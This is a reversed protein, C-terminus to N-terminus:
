PVQPSSKRRTQLYETQVASWDARNLGGRWVITGDLRLWLHGAPDTHAELQKWGTGLTAPLHFYPHATWVRGRDLSYRLVVRGEGDLGILLFGDDYAQLSAQGLVPAGYPNEATIPLYDWGWTNRGTHDILRKWLRAEGNQVGYLLVEDIREDIRSPRAAGCIETVPLFPLETNAIADAVPAAGDAASTIGTPTIVFRCGAATFTGAEPRAWAQTDWEETPRRSWVTSDGETRHVRLELTYTRRVSRDASYVVLERPQSLDLSDTLTFSEEQGTTLSRLVASGVLNLTSLVARAANTGRPLSDVNYILNREQDITFPYLTGSVSTTVISDRQGDATRQTATRVLKGLQVGTIVCENSVETVTDDDNFCATTLTGLMLSATGFTICHLIKRM